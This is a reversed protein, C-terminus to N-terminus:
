ESRPKDKKSLRALTALERAFERIPKAPIGAVRAGPAVDDKLASAGAVQAGDGVKIHGISGAQGGMAVFDGLETSGAIGVQAALVCHRGIIVNHGIQVQNDLKSGEGIITDRNAGRDITTGAGIEVNSQIIVRGVQVVKAHGRASMAFGFGDQGIAANPHIIVHDGIFAHQITANAGIACGRGITVQPGIVVNPGIITGAGIEVDAGIVAGHEITVNAELRASPHVIARESIGEHHIITQPRLADPYLLAGIRAFAAYPEPVVLAITSEPLEEAYRRGVFCVGARTERAMAVYASNDLFSLDQAGALDLPAIGSIERALDVEGRPEAGTASILEAVSLSKPPPFFSKREM